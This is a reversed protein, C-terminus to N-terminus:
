DFVFTCGRLKIKKLLKNNKYYTHIISGLELGIETPYTLNNGNKLLFYPYEDQIVKLHKIVQSDQTLNFGKGKQVFKFLFMIDSWIKSYKKPIRVTEPIIILKEKQVPPKKEAILYIQGNLITKKLKYERFVNDFESQFTLILYILDEIESNPIKLYKVLKSFNLKKKYQNKFKGLATLIQHMKKLLMGFRYINESTEDSSVSM